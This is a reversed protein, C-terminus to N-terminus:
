DADPDEELGPAPSLDAGLAEARLAEDLVARLGLGRDAPAAAGAVPVWLTVLAEAAEVDLRAADTASLPQSPLQYGVPAAPVTGGSREIWAGVAEARDRRADRARLHRERLGGAAGAALVESLYAGRREGDLVAELLAPLEGAAPPDVPDSTPVATPALEVAAPLAATVAAPPADEDRGARAVRQAMAAQWASHACVLRAFGPSTDVASRTSLVALGTLAEAVGAAGDAGTGTTPAAPATEASQGAAAAQQGTLLHERQEGLGALLQAGLGADLAGGATGDAGLTARLETVAALLARRALEDAGPAPPEWATPVGLRLGCGTAGAAVLAAVASGLVARRTPVPPASTPPLV